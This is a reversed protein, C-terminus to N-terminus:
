LNEGHLGRKYIVYMYIMTCMYNDKKMLLFLLLLFM